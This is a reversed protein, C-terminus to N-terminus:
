NAPVTITAYEVGRAPVRAILDLELKSKPLERGTGIGRGSFMQSLFFTNGYRRFVLQGKGQQSLSADVPLVIVFWTSNQHVSRILLSSTDSIYKVEYSGAPLVTNWVGFDFPVEFGLTRTATSQARALPVILFGFLAICTFAKYHLM